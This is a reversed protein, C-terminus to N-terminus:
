KSRCFTALTQCTKMTLNCANCSLMAFAVDLNLSLAYADDSIITHQKIKIKQCKISSNKTM